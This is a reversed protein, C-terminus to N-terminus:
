VLVVLNLTSDCGFMKLGIRSILRPYSGMGIRPYPKGLSFAEFGLTIAILLIKFFM